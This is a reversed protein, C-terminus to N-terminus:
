GKEMALVTASAGARALAAERVLNHAGWGAQSQLLRCHNRIQAFLRILYPMLTAQCGRNFSELNRPSVSSEM